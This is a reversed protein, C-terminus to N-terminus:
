ERPRVVFLARSTCVPAGQADSCRTEFTVFRAGRREIDSTVAGRAVVTEGARPHREWTFEQEAHLLRGFDIAAEPDEFLQPATQALAYVAAYTPPIGAAPDAGIARAFREAHAADITLELPAYEKVAV